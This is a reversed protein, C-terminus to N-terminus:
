VNCSAQSLKQQQSHLVTPTTVAAEEVKQSSFANKAPLRLSLTLSPM